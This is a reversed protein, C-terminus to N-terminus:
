EISRRRRDPGPRGPAPPKGLYEYSALPGAARAGEYWKAPAGAALSAAVFAAINAEGSLPAATSDRADKHVSVYARFRGRGLPVTLSLMSLRPNLSASMRDEPAALGEMLLGAIVMGEPDREVHFGGWRRCVSNRGDAGVVLRARYVREGNGDEHVRVGPLGDSVLEVVRAGRRVTAGAAAAAGIVVSQMDPHYFNLSGARHPSTKVLDRRGFESFGVLQDSWYRVEHGCTELLLEYLGLTRAEAVGWCHMQEGRVRDRFAVERELVLVRMGNEALRKALAAGALGGGITIVDYTEAMGTESVILWAL